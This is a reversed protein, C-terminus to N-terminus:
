RERLLPAIEFAPWARPDDPPFSVTVRILAPLDGREPWDSQWAAPEGGGPPALYAFALGSIGRVLTESRTGAAGPDAPSGDEADFPRWRLVLVGSGDDADERALVFDYVGDAVAQSPAPGVFRLRTQSGEFLVGRGGRRPQSPYPLIGALQRSLLGHVRQLETTRELTETGREWATAGFRLGGAVVAFVLGLLTMAVLLELLTFGRQRRSAERARYVAPSM